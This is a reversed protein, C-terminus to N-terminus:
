KCIRKAIIRIITPDEKKFKALGKSEIFYKIEFGSDMIMKLLKESSRYYRKHEFTKYEHENKDSRVEIALWMASWDLVSQLVEDDIVHIFVRMYSLTPKPLLKVAEEAPLGVLPDVEFTDWRKKLTPTDMRHYRNVGENGCGINAVTLYDEKIEKMVFNVFRSKRM